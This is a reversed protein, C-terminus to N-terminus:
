NHWAIRAVVIGAPHPIPVDVPSRRNDGSAFACDVHNSGHAKRALMLQPDCHSTPRVGDCAMRHALAAEDDIKRQHSARADIWRFSSDAHLTSAEILMEVAFALKEAKRCSAADYTMGANSSKRETASNPM